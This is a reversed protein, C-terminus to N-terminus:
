MKDLEKKQKVLMDRMVEVYPEPMLDHYLELYKEMKRHIEKAEVLEPPTHILEPKPKPKVPVKKSGTVVYPKEWKGQEFSMYYSCHFYDTMIDSKDWHDQKAVDIIKKLVDENKYMHPHYHNLECHDKDSFRVPGSLISITVSSSGANKRVSFKFKPFAKKLNERIKSVEEKTIYAM